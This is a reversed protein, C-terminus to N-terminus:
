AFGRVKRLIVGCLTRVHGFGGIALHVSNRVFKSIAKCLDMVKSEVSSSKNKRIWKRHEAPDHRALLGGKGKGLVEMNLVEESGREKSTGLCLYSAYILSAGEIM